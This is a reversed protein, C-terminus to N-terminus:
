ALKRLGALSFLSGLAGGAAVSGAAVLALTWSTVGPLFRGFAGADAQDLGAGLAAVGVGAILGAVVGTLAGQLVFPGAIAWWPAGVLRMIRVEGARALLSARIANATVATAVVGLLLLVLGGVAQLSLTVHQVRAYLNPDFSTPYEPDTAAYRRVDAALRPLASPDRLTAELSAPFPNSGSTTVLSSVGPRQEARAMADAKTVLSVGQVAPDAELHQRLDAVDGGSADDRLFVHLVFAQRAETTGLTTLAVTAISLIGGTFLLMAMSTLAPLVGGLNRRWDRLAALVVLRLVNGALARRSRPPTM